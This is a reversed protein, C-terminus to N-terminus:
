QSVNRLSIKPVRCACQPDEPQGTGDGIPAMFEASGLLGRKKQCEETVVETWKGHQLTLRFNPTKLVFDGRFFMLIHICLLLEGLPVPFIITSNKEASISNLTQFIHNAVYFPCVLVPHKKRM